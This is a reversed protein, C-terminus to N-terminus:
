YKLLVSILNETNLQKKLSWKNCMGSIDAPIKIPFYLLRISLFVNIPHAWIQDLAKSELASNLLIYRYGTTQGPISWCAATSQSEKSIQRIYHLLVLRMYYKQCVICWWFSFVYSVFGTILPNCSKGKIYVLFHINWYINPSSPTFLYRLKHM